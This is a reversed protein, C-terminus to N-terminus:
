GRRTFAHHVKIDVWLGVDGRAKIQLVPCPWSAATEDDRCIRRVSVVLEGNGGELRSQNLIVMLQMIGNTHDNVVKLLNAM